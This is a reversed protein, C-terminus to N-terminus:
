RNKTLSLAAMSQNIGLKIINAPDGIIKIVERYPEGWHQGLSWSTTPVTLWGEMVHALSSSKYASGDRGTDPAVGM